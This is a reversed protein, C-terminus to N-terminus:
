RAFIAQELMRGYENGGRIWINFWIPAFILGCACGAGVQLWTHHGLWTRSVAITTAWPLVILPPLVRTIMRSPLSPHIPLYLCSLTIYVAFFTITASHTSPMGYSKKRRGRITKVPRPQRVLRKIAKVTMSCIVAGTAFYAVGASRTYVLFGATLTTVISNTSRGSAKDLFIMWWANAFVPEDGDAPM